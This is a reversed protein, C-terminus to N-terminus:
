AITTTLALNMTHTDGLGQNLADEDTVGELVPGDGDEDGVLLHM